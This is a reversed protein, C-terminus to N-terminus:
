KKPQELTHDFPAERKAIVTAFLYHFLQEASQGSLDPCLAWHRWLSALCAAAGMDDLADNWTAIDM